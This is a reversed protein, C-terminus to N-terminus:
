ISGSGSGMLSICSPLEFAGNIWCVNIFAYKTAFNAFFHNVRKPPCTWSLLDLTPLNSSEPALGGVAGICGRYLMNSRVYGHCQWLCGYVILFSIRQCGWKECLGEQCVKVVWIGRLSDSLHKPTTLGLGQPCPTHKPHRLTNQFIWIKKPSTPPLVPRLLPHRNTKEM